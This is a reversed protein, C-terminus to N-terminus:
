KSDQNLFKSISLGLLSAAALGVAGAVLWGPSVSSSPQQLDQSSASAEEPNVLYWDDSPKFSAGESIFFSCSLFKSLQQM